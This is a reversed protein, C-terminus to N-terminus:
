RMSSDTQQMVTSPLPQPRRDPLLNRALGGLGLVVFAVLAWGPISLGLFSWSVEACEGSATFAMRITETLPFTDLMYALGPGCEPVRDPPLSQLWVHRGAIFAGTGAVLAIVVAYVRAGAVRPAHLAATLFVVGLGIFAVRQFVCLPCPELGDVFQLVYGYGLLGACALFGALNTLRRSPMAAGNYHM